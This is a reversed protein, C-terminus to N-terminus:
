HFILSPLNYFKQQHSKYEKVAASNRVDDLAGEFSDGKYVAIIPFGKSELFKTFEVQHNNVHASIDLNHVPKKPM